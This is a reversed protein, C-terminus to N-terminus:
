DNQKFVYSSISKTVMGTTDPWSVEVTLKRTNPDTSGGVLVIDDQLDRKVVETFFKREYIEDVLNKTTTALWTSGTWILYYNTDVTGLNDWDSSLFDVAEIGEEALYIAKITKLNTSSTKFYIINAYILSTSLLLVIASAIIVEVLSMGSKNKLGLLM